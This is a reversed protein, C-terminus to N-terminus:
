GASRVGVILKEGDSEKVLAARLTVPHAEGGIMLRYSISFAGNEAADRLVNEKTFLERYRPYDEPAVTREGDSLAKAYFDDGQKEFGLGEYEGTASYEFYHGTNPNVTYMCLYDGTLASIRQYAARDREIEELLKKQRMQSDISSVGIIIYRGSGQMRMIKMNVFEPEGNRILRYTFTFAGQEDLASLIKEKRFAEIFAERDEHYLFELADKRSEFFFNSGHRELALDEEGVGSSYEIFEETELDVYYLNFYDAALARAINAYDTGQDADTVTLVVIVAAITGDLPDVAIGRVFYHADTNDPMKIDVYEPSGNRSCRRIIEVMAPAESHAIGKSSRDSTLYRGMFDRYSQNSRVVRLKDVTLEVIAMPLTNFFNHFKEGSGQTIVALDHLNVRGITEFYHSEAPNEFGIQLGRRNRELIQSLPLPKSYYYGQLKSCGTERLFVVQEETEVGECVTDIGLFTAMKLLETLIIRSADGEGFSQLFRMDFKILDFKISQLVDLSSYGSGFDDMWVAFGLERFRDIQVKMFEFSSGITSETIEITVLSRPLGSEDVRKRIEEVMDCADFDSRSLNVSQPVLHLGEAKLVALKELVRDVVYLDLKYILGCDELVPIFDAPSMFGKVPDIWRALAEEDCVRGNVARVIPQYYVKIWDQSIARDINAIIYQRKEEIDKMSVDYYCYASSYTNKISDCALKARDCAAGANVKEARDPYVGCHVPLALGGNIWRAEEFLASLTEDLKGESSVAAFHDEGIRCSCESGFYRALVRAFARLLRDGEAFGHRHNFDKMRCLDLFLLVPSAGENLLADRRAIALEFFYTMNPLGTLQDYRSEKLITEERIAARLEETLRTGNEKDSYSGEYTYWVQALREGTGTRIHEGMAHIINYGAHNSNKSRYIVDYRSNEAGDKAFRLAADAIRAADDPHIDKYMDNDMDNYAQDKGTYGFLDLFGASLVLTVVRGEIFQYVAFPIRSGEM